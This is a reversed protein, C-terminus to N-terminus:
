AVQRRVVDVFHQGREIYSNYMDFSACAPSLLVCDGARALVAAKEVAETMTQAYEIPVVNGLAEGIGPADRGILVAARGHHKMVPKLGSFDAGKGDGGAILVVPCELGEIAAVTAGVNTGKSDNYWRVRNHEAVWETRHPLGPFNMAAHLMREMPMGAAEGLALAALVNAMNHRGPVQLQESAILRRDGKALWIDDADIIIGYDDNAPRGLGFLVTKRHEDRMTMVLADDANLVMVGEGNFIRQKAATYQAIDDYRDMHDASINLVTAAMPQLSTTTELQFSSLELIYCDPEDDQLLDLVPTGINGGVRAVMGSERAMAGLLMTVTSKGNSGTIAIVPSPVVRAFLEVDGVIEVGAEAAQRIAPQRVSVGPSVVLQRAQCMLSADFGGPFFAVDPYERQLEALCPPQERSDLVAVECGQSVLYRVCSLGTKGLGIVIVRDNKDTNVM